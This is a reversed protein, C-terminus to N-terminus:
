NYCNEFFILDPYKKLFMKRKIQYVATKMGKVDEVFTKGDKVYVFDAIYKIPLIKRKKNKRHVEVEFAEQLVFPVQMQLESVEGSKEMFYLEEYRSAEAKSDFTKGLIETKNNGYKNARM